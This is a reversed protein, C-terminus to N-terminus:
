WLRVAGEQVLKVNYLVEETELDVRTFTIKLREGSPNHIMIGQPAQYAQYTVGAQPPLQWRTFGLMPAEASVDKLAVGRVEGRQWDSPLSVKITETSDHSIDVLAQGNLLSVDLRLSVPETHEVAIDTTM